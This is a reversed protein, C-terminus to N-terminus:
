KFENKSNPVKLIIENKISFRLAFLNLLLFIVQGAISVFEKWEKENFSFREPITTEFTTIKGHVIDSLSGYLKQAETASVLELIPMSTNTELNVYTLYGKSNLHSIMESFSLDGDHEKWAHANHPMDWLYVAAIGLELIRRLIISAPKDMAITALYVSSAGDAFIEDFIKCCIDHHSSTRKTSLIEGVASVCYLGVFIRDLSPDPLEKWKTFNDAFKKNLEDIIESPTKNM